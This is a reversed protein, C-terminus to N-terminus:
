FSVTSWYGNNFVRSFRAQLPDNTICFRVYQKIISLQDKNLASLRRKIDNASNFGFEILLLEYPARGPFFTDGFCIMGFPLFKIYGQESLFSFPISQCWEKLQDISDSKSIASYWDSSEQDDPAFDSRFLIPLADIAFNELVQAVIRDRDELISM